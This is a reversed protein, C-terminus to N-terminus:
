KLMYFLLVSPMISTTLLSVAALIVMGIVFNKEIVYSFLANYCDVEYVYEQIAHYKTNCKISQQTIVSFKCCSNPVKHEGNPNVFRNEMWEMWHMGEIQKYPEIGCCQMSSQLMDWSMTIPDNPINPNYERLTQLMYARLFREVTDAFMLTLLGGAILSIIILLTIATYTLLLVKRPKMASYIGFAAIICMTSGAVMLVHTLSLFINTRILKEYYSHDVRMWIGTSLVLAGSLMLLCNFFVMLYRMCIASKREKDM